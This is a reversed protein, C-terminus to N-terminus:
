RESPVANQEASITTQAEALRELRAAIWERASQAGEWRSQSPSELSKEYPALLQLVLSAFRIDGSLAKNACQKALAARKSVSKRRGAENIMIQENLAELLLTVFAKSGKTRGRPNGSQGKKFQSHKPPKGYGVTYRAEISM